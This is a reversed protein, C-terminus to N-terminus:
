QIKLRQRIYSKTKKKIAEVLTEDDMSLDAIGTVAGARLTDVLELSLRNIQRCIDGFKTAGVGAERLMTDVGCCLDVMVEAILPLAIIEITQDLPIQSLALRRRAESEAAELIATIEDHRARLSRLKPSAVARSGMRRTEEAMKREITSLEREYAHYVRPPILATDEPWQYAMPDTM